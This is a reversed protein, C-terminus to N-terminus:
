RNKASVQQLFSAVGRAIAEAAKRQYEADTLKTGEGPHSIFGVEVLIAPAQLGMLVYFPAQQVGRDLGGTANVLEQQVAYALRSSDAHAESRQLDALIFALTDGGKPRKDHFEANERAAVKKAQEGSAAASLFYTEIGETNLRQKRTPMSNLHVSVFLDPKQANAWDVRDALAVDVDSSRTMKVTAKLQSELEAKLLKSIELAADKEWAGTQSVAGTQGGGHGPDVIVVPGAWAPWAAVCLLLSRVAGDYTLFRGNTLGHRAARM